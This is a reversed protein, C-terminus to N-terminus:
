QRERKCGIIRDNTLVLAGCELDGREEGGRVVENGPGGRTGDEGERHRRKVVGRVGQEEWRDGGGQLPAM